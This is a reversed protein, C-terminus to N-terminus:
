YVSEENKQKRKSKPDIAKLIEGVAKDQYIEHPLPLDTNVKYRSCRGEKKRMIYGASELDTIINRVAKETVGVSKAMDRATITKQRSVLFLVLAHNTLFKWGPM